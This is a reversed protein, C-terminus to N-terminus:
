AERIVDIRGTFLASIKGNDERLQLCGNTDISCADGTIVHLNDDHDQSVRLRLGALADMTAFEQLFSDLYYTHGTPREIDFHEFRSMAALLAESIQQYLTQLTPLSNANDSVLMGYIDQLSIAQYSMGECTQATLKPTAQVNLGVGMVVGVLKGAKWVPEILIGALKNLQIIQTDPEAKDAEPLNQYFGLDNAWKVGIPTLSQARLQENLRQIIPMKALEVGIILSLLGSIPMHVPHYLSLYVNGRPSQWSRGRQGRGASQTEATLLHLETADLTADQVADILESNTSASSTVHRHTLEPLHVSYNVPSPMSISLPM